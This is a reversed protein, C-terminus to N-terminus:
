ALKACDLFAQNSQCADRGACGASQECAAYDEDRKDTDFVLSRSDYGVSNTSIPVGGAYGLVVHGVDSPDNGRLRLLDVQPADRYAVLFGPALSSAQEPSLAPEPVEAITVPATPLGGSISELKPGGNALGNSYLSVSGMTQNTIVVYQGDKTAAIGFP